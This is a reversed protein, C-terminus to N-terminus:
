RSAVRDAARTQPDAHRNAGPPPWSAGGVGCSADEPETRSRYRDAGGRSEVAIDAKCAVANDALWVKTRDVGALDAELAARRAHDARTFVALPGAPWPPRHCFQRHLPRARGTSARRGWRGAPETGRGLM